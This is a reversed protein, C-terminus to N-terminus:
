HKRGYINLKQIRIEKSHHTENQVNCNRNKTFELKIMDIKLIM